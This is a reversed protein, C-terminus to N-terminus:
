LVHFMDIFSVLNYLAQNGKAFIESKLCYKEFNLKTSLLLQKVLLRCVIIVCVFRSSAFSTHVFDRRQKTVILFEYNEMNIRKEYVELCVQYQCVDIFLPLYSVM